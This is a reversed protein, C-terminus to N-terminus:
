KVLYEKMCEEASVKKRGKDSFSYIEFRDRKIENNLVYKLTFNIENNYYKSSYWNLQDVEKAFWFNKNLFLCRLNCNKCEHSEKEKKEYIVANEKEISEYQFCKKDKANSGEAYKCKEKLNEEAPLYNMNILISVYIKKKNDDYSCRFEINDVCLHKLWHFRSVSGMREFYRSFVAQTVRSKSIDTLDLLRLWISIKRLDIKHNRFKEESVIGYVKEYDNGHNVSVEAVYKKELDTLPLMEDMVIDDKARTPHQSRVMDEFFVETQDHILYIKRLMAEMKIIKIENFYKSVDEYFEILKMNKLDYLEKTSLGKLMGIDHLYCASFLIFKEDKDLSFKNLLKPSLKMYNQILEISHEQNHLTFFTLDKSGNKWVCHVYYHLCIIIDKDKSSGLNDDVIARIKEFNTDVEHCLYEYNKTIDELLDFFDDRDFMKNHLFSLIRYEWFKLTRGKTNVIISEECEFFDMFFKNLYEKYDIMEDKISYLNFTNKKNNNIVMNSEPLKKEKYTGKNRVKINDFLLYAPNIFGHLDIEKKWFEVLLSLWKVKRYESLEDSNLKLYDDEFTVKNKEKEDSIKEIENINEDKENISKRIYINTDDYKYIHEIDNEGYKILSRRFILDKDIMVNTIKKLKIPNDVYYKIAKVEKDLEKKEEKNNKDEEDNKINVEEGNMELIWSDDQYSYYYKNILLNDKFKNRLESLMDKYFRSYKVQYIAKITALYYFFMMEKKSVLEEYHKLYNTVKEVLYQIKNDDNEANRLLNLLNYYYNFGNIDDKLIENEKIDCEFINKVLEYFRNKTSIKRTLFNAKRKSYTIYEKKIKRIESEKVNEKISNDRDGEVSEYMDEITNKIAKHKKIVADEIDSPIEFRPNISANILSADNTIFDLQNKVSKEDLSLFSVKDSNLEIVKKTEFTTDEEDKKDIKGGNIKKFIDNLIRSIKEEPTEEINKDKKIKEDAKINKIKNDQLYIRGDDIYSFHMFDYVGRQNMESKFESYLSRIYFVAFFTSFLPGQPLGMDNTDIKRVTKKKEKKEDDSSSKEYSECYEQFIEQTEKSINEVNYYHIIKEVWKYFESEKKLNLSEAIDEILRNQSISPYFEKIDYEYVYQYISGESGYKKQESVFKKYQNTWNAYLYKPNDSLKVGYNEKPLFNKLNEFLVNFISQMIVLDFFRFRTLPRYSVKDNDVKKIKTIFDFKNFNYNDSGNLIIKRIELIQNSPKNKQLKDDDIIEVGDQVKIFEIIQDIDKEFYLIEQELLLETNQVTNKLRLYALYINDVSAAQEIYKEM